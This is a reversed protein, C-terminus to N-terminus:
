NDQAPQGALADSTRWATPSLGTFGHWDRSMHAQDAYGAAAAIAAWPAPDARIALRHAQEFRLVRAALKPPLGVERRFQESLHRRSWGLERALATIEVAGNSTVLQRWTEIVEPRLRGVSHRDDVRSMARVFMDDLAAFRDTWRNSAGVRDVLETGPVGLVADLPVMLEVLEAAPMGYLARAGFPTLSIQVGHQSGDHRIGVSRSTLGSAVTSFRGASRGAGSTLDLPEDLSVVATMSRSPMGLHVGPPFGRMEYGVYTSIFPRLQATPPSTVQV